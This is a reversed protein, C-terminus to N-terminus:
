DDCYGEINLVPEDTLRTTIHFVGNEIKLYHPDLQIGSCLAPNSRGVSDHVSYVNRQTWDFLGGIKM